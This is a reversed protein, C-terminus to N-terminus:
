MKSARIYWFMSLLNSTQENLDRWDKQLQLFNVAKIEKRTSLIEFFQIEGSIGLRLRIINNCETHWSKKERAPSNPFSKHFIPSCKCRRFPGRFKNYHPQLLYMWTLCLWRHVSWELDKKWTMHIKLPAKTQLLVVSAVNSTWKASSSRSLYIKKRGSSLIVKFCLNPSQIKFMQKYVGVPTNSLM